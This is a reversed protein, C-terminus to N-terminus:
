RTFTDGQFVARCLAAKKRCYMFFLSRWGLTRGSDPNTEYRHLCPIVQHGGATADQRKDKERNDLLLLLRKYQRVIWWNLGVDSDGIVM